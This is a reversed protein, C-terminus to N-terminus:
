RVVVFHSRMVRANGRLLATYTGIPLAALNSVDMQQQGPLIDILAVTTGDIAVVTLQKWTDGSPLELRTGSLLPSPIVFGSTSSFEDVGVLTVNFSRTNSFAHWGCDNGARVRWDYRGDTLEMGTVTTSPETITTDSYVLTAGQRIELEYRTAPNSPATWRFDITRLHSDYSVGGIPSVLTQVLSTVISTRFNGVQSWAGWGQENEGRVRWYLQVGCPVATAVFFTDATTVSFPAGSFQQSTSFQLEYNSAARSRTWSFTVPIAVNAQSATPLLLTVAAPTASAPVFDVKINNGDFTANITIPASLEGGSATLTFAGNGTFPIAYGGSSSTVAYNTGRSPKVEVGALGEGPDYFGNSNRDTYVVGTIYRVTRIGFTQTVVYPGVTGQQLGGNTRTIGVGIETFVFNKFNMINERHGLEIQNQEGWDVNLGCHGHWVSNSYAAVNEGFMGQSQYGVKQFRHNLQDGNSSTHGQFNHQIMDATHTRAASMLAPHFVLPPRQPYSTFAQKTATKNINFFQYAFQVDQDDTDMLRIGEETPNARARNILELMYQEDNTPDGHSYLQTPQASAVVGILSAAAALLLVYSKM